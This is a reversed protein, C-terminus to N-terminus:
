LLVSLQAFRVRVGPIPVSIEVETGEGQDSWIQIEAGISAARERMGTLGWHSQGSQFAQPDIGKGDDRVVLRLKRRLYEIEVEVSRAESHQLANLLAERAILFIQEQVSPNLLRAEGVIVIRFRARESPAFDNRVDCLAKGLSEEPLVPSRLGLLTARGESIGKRILDLALRLMPKAPSDARLWDDALCLQMSASLFGRLLTDHSERAVQIREKHREVQLLDWERGIEAQHHWPLRQRFSGTLQMVANGWSMNAEKSAISGTICIV